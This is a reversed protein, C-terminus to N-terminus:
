RLVSAFVVEQLERLPAATRRAKARMPAGQLGSYLFGALKEPDQERSLEGAAHAERLYCRM